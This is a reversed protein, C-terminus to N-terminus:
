FGPQLLGRPPLSGVPPCSAAQPSATLASILQDSVPTFPTQSPHSQQVLHAPDTRRRCGQLLCFHAEMELCSLTLSIRPAIEWGKGTCLVPLLTVMNTGPGLRSEPSVAPPALDARM